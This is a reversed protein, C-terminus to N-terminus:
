NESKKLQMVHQEYIKWAQIFSFFLVIYGEKDKTSNEEVIDFVARREIGVLERGIYEQLRDLHQDIEAEAEVMAAKHQESEIVDDITYKPLIEGLTFKKPKKKM